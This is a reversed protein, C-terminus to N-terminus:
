SGGIIWWQELELHVWGQLFGRLGQQLSGHKASLTTSPSASGLVNVTYPSSDHTYVTYGHVDMSIMTLSQILLMITLPIAKIIPIDINAMLTYHIHDINTLPKINLVMKVTMASSPYATNDMTLIIIWHAHTNATIKVQNATDLRSTLSVMMLCPVSHISLGVPHCPHGLSLHWLSVHMSNRDLDAPSPPYVHRSYKGKGFSLSLCWPMRIVQTQGHQGSILVLHDRPPRYHNSVEPVLCLIRFCQM